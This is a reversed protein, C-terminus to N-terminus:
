EVGNDEYDIKKFYKCSGFYRKYTKVPSSMVINDTIDLRTLTLGSIDSGVAESLTSVFNNVEHYKLTDINHNHIFRPASGELHIGYDDLKFEINKIKATYSTYTEIKLTELGYKREIYNIDIVTADPSFIKITDFM